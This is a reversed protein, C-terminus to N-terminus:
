QEIFGTTQGVYRVRGTRPDTLTYLTGTVPATNIIAM